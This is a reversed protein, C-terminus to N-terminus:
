RKKPQNVAKRAIESLEQALLIEASASNALLAGHTAALRRVLRDLRKGRWFGLQTKLDGADRWFIRGSRRESEVFESINGRTGLRGALQALQATRREFALLVGVAGLSLERMRRLEGPIRAGDGSLVANVLPAFGEEETGAGIADLDDAHVTRPAQPSSDCFLALKDIESQALRL